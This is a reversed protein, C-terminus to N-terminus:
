TYSVFSIAFVEVIMPPERQVKKAVNHGERERIKLRKIGEEEKKWEM